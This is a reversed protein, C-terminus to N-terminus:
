ASNLKNATDIGLYALLGGVIVVLVTENQIPYFSVMAGFGILGMMAVIQLIEKTEM